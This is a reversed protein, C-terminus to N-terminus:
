EIGDRPFGWHGHTSIALLQQLVLTTISFYHFIIHLIYM